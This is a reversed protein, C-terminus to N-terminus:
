LPTTTEITSGGSQVGVVDHKHNKLSIGGATIDQTTSINGDFTAGTGGNGAMSGNLVLNGNITVTPATMTIGSGTITMTVGGVTATISTPADMTITTPTLTIKCAGTTDEIVVGDPGYITVANPNVASWATNGIPLFVLAGLSATATLDPVGTGLGCQPAINVSAAIAIGKDGVKIPYRIYEPGFLPMQVQPLTYPSSVDFSVTVIAGDVAVVHCPWSQGARQSADNVVKEALQNVSRGVPLKIQNSM